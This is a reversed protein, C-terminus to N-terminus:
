DKADWDREFQGKFKKVVWPDDIIIGIERNNDLANESLNASWMILIKGDILINKAHIYPDYIMKVGTGLIDLVGEEQYKGVIVQVRVRQSKQQELIRIIEEDEIYQTEIEISKEADKLADSIKERCDIPCVYLYRDIDQKRLKEWEFDKDFISSLSRIIDKNEWVFRYERNRWLSPYTFNATAIIFTDDDIIMTKAHVFNTWMKEDSIIQVDDQELKKKAKDFADHDGGYVENELIIQIHKGIQWLNSFMSLFTKETILYDWM